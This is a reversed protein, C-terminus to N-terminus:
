LHAHDARFVKEANPRPALALLVMRCITVPITEIVIQIATMAEWFLTWVLMNM